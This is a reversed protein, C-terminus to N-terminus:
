TTVESPEFVFADLVEANRQELAAQRSGPVAPPYHVPARGRERAEDAAEFHDTLRKKSLNAVWALGYGDYADPQTAKWSTALAYAAWRWADPDPYSKIAKRLASAPRGPVARKVKPSRGLDEAAEDLGRNWAEAFPALDAPKARPPTRSCADGEVAAAPTVSVSVSVSDPVTGSPNRFPESLTEPRDGLLSSKGDTAAEM